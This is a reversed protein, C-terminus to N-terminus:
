TPTRRFSHPLLPVQKTRRSPPMSAPGNGLSSGRMVGVNFGGQSAGRTVSIRDPHQIFELVGLAYHPDDVLPEFFYDLRGGGGSGGLSSHQPSAEIQWRWSPQEALSLDEVSLGRNTFGDVGTPHLETPDLTLSAGQALVVHGTWAKGDSALAVAYTGSEFGLEMPVGRRKNLEVLLRGDSDRFSMRGGLGSPLSLRASSEHLDTLVVDGTGAVAMEYSPHQAGAQTRETKEVTENFAFQYAENLTIRGDRTVDAAGRLGSILNQTFFSGGLRDSEQSIESPASSTLVAEGAVRQSADELFLPVREGGKTRTFTGSSCSDLVAVRFSTPISSLAHKLDAYALHRGKLLLGEDDSHGSYYFVLEASTTPHPDSEIRVRVEDIARRLSEVDPDEVMLQDTPRVGGLSTM